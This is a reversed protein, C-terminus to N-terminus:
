GTQVEDKKAFIRRGACQGEPISCHACCHASLVSFNQINMESGGRSTVGLGELQSLGRSFTAQDMGLHEAAAGKEYPLRFVGGKGSMNSTLRLFLCAIRQSAKRLASCASELHMDKIQTVMLSLLRAVLVPSVKARERLVDASIQLLRCEGTTEATFLYSGGDFISAIGFMEGQTLLRVSSKRGDPDVNYIKIWGCIIVYFFKAPDGQTVILAQKQYNQVSEGASLFDVDERPLDRFFPSTSLINGIAKKEEAM